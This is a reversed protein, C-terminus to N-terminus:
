SQYSQLTFKIGSFAATMTIVKHYGTFGPTGPPACVQFNEMQVQIGPADQYHTGSFTGTTNTTTTNTTTNNNTTIIHARWNEYDKMSFPLLTFCAKLRGGRVRALEVDAKWVLEYWLLIHQCHYFFHFHNYFTLTTIFFRALEISKWWAFMKTSLISANSSFFTFSTILM